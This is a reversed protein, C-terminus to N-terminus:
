HFARRARAAFALTNKEGLPKQPLAEDPWWTEMVEHNDWLAFTPVAANFTDPWVQGMVYGALLATVGVMLGPYGWYYLHSAWGVTFKAVRAFKKARLNERISNKIATRRNVLNHRYEILSRWQRVSAKPVHVMPLSDMESLQALKLADKRDSKEKVTKWRWREDNGNAVQVPVKM